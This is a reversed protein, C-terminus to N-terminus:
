LVFRPVDQVGMSHGTQHEGGLAEVARVLSVERTLSPKMGRLSPCDSLELSVDESFSGQLPIADGFPSSSPVCVAALPVAPSSLVSTQTAGGTGSVFAPEHGFVQSFAPAGDGVVPPPAVANSIEWPQSSIQHLVPISTPELGVDNSAPSSPGRAWTVHGEPRQLSQETDTFSSSWSARNGILSPMFGTMVMAQPADAGGSPGPEWKSVFLTAGSVLPEMSQAKTNQGTEPSGASMVAPAEYSEAGKLEPSARGGGGDSMQASLMEADSDWGESQSTESSCSSISEARAAIAEDTPTFFPATPSEDQASSTSSRRRASTRTGSTSKSGTPANSKTSSTSAPTAPQQRM